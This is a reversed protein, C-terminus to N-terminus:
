RPEDVASPLLDAKERGLPPPFPEVSLGMKGLLVKPMSFHALRPSIWEWDLQKLEAVEVRERLVGGPSMSPRTPPFLLLPLFLGPSSSLAEVPSSASTDLELRM